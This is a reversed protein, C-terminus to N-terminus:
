TRQVVQRWVRLGLRARAQVRGAAFWMSTATAAVTRMKAFSSLELVSAAEPVGPSMHLGRLALEEDSGISCQFM